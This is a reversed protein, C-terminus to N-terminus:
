EQIQAIESKRWADLYRQIGAKAAPAAQEIATQAASSRLDGGSTRFLHAAQAAVAEDFEALLEMLRVLDGDSEQLLREAYERAATPKGDGDVDIWVMGSAGLVHTTPDISMPQYPKATRWYPKEIGPGLAIAVLHVDHPPRPLSVEGQWKVGLPMPERPDGIPEFDRVLIGNAYVLVRDASTWSPGLVRVTAQLHDGSVPALDGPRHTGGVALEVALGYSVMVRGERFSDVAAEVDIKGPDSDDCRIYTRGQGVFHRAVDHSDSAGVPTISIGRNALAM